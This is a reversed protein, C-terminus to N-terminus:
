SPAANQLMGTRQACKVRARWYLPAFRFDVNSNFRLLQSRSASATNSCMTRREQNELSRGGAKLLCPGCVLAMSLRSWGRVVVFGMAVLDVVLVAVTVVFVMCSVSTAMSGTGLDIFEPRAPAIGVTTAVEDSGVPQIFQLALADASPVGDLNQVALVLEATESAAYQM